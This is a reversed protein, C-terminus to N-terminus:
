TNYGADDESRKSDLIAVLRMQYSEYNNYECIIVCVSFTYDLSNIDRDIAFVDSHISFMFRLFRMTGDNSIERIEDRLISCQNIFNDYPKNRCIPMCVCTDCVTIIHKMM